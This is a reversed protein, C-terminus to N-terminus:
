FQQPQCCNMGAGWVTSLGKLCVNTKVGEAIKHSKLKHM